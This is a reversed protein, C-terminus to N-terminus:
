RLAALRGGAQDAEEHRGAPPPLGLGREFLEAAALLGRDCVLDADGPESEPLGVPGQVGELLAKASRASLIISM